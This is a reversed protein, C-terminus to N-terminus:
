TCNLEAIDNFGGDPAISKAPAGQHLLPLARGQVKNAEGNHPSVCPLVTLSEIRISANRRGQQNSRSFCVHSIGMTTEHPM